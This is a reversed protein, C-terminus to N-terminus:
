KAGASASACPLVWEVLHSRQRGQRGEWVKKRLPLTPTRWCLVESGDRMEDEDRPGNNCTDSGCSVYTEAQGNSSVKRDIPLSHNDKGLQDGSSTKPSGLHGSFRRLVRPFCNSHLESSKAPIGDPIRPDFEGYPHVFSAGHVPEQCNSLPSQSMETRMSLMNGDSNRLTSFAGNRSVNFMQHHSDSACVLNPREVHMQGEFYFDSLGSDSGRETTSLTGGQMRRSCGLLNFSRKKVEFHNQNSPNIRIEVNRGLVSQLSSAITKWSKEAKSVDSPHSFNLEAVVIGENLLISSLKGQKRLFNKFSKSHCLETARQWLNDLTHRCVIPAGIGCHGSCNCSCPIIHSKSEDTSPRNCGDKELNKLHFEAGRADPSSCSASSLQLLAVTLWTTQNKSVRLQKETESLIKLAQSLKTLDSESDHMRFLKTKSESTLERCEGSLINMILNALQSILQMPDIRSRMLERARIVTSSTDSSLAGDLLDLLEDDSVIGMLEYVLTITIRQGLLTLQDLMMEADRLSGGSKAAVFELAARDFIIGEEVCIDVLRGAIDADEIKPFHYRHSRSVAIKPLKDLEATIMMFVAHRSINNLNNIITTWTEAQLLQCEDFVFVKFRSSAPPEAANKLLSRIKDAHNIRVSDVEKIDRSRGYFFMSCERCMGCPGHDTLMLCNLAAAFIRAASTKGTGRPGHFLYVPSIRGTSICGLLSRAVLDQGVLDSFSKPAFRQSLSKYAERHPSSDLNVHRSSERQIYNNSRYNNIPLLQRDETDSFPSSAKFKPTRSSWCCGARYGHSYHDIEAPTVDGSLRFSTSHSSGRMFDNIELTKPSSVRSAFDQAAGTLRSQNQHPSIWVPAMYKANEALSSGGTMDSCSGVDEMHGAYPMVRALDLGEEDPEHCNVQGCIKEMEEHNQLKVETHNANNSKIDRYHYTDRVPHEFEMNGLKSKGPGVSSCCNEEKVLLEPLGSDVDCGERCGPTFRLSIGNTSNTEWNGNDLLTSFKSLSNTSPDKLSRVRRLAVLTKSIPIDVSHRRGDM